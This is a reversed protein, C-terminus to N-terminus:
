GCSCQNASIRGKHPDQSGPVGDKNRLCPFQPESVRSATRLSRPLLLESRDDM